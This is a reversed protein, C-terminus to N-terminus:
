EADDPEPPDIEPDVNFLEHQDGDSITVVMKNSWTKMSQLQWSQERECDFIAAKIELIRDVRGEATEELEQILHKKSEMAEQRKSNAQNYLRALRRLRESVVDGFGAPLGGEKEAGQVKRTRKAM